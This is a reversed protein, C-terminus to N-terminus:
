TDVGDSYDYALNVLETQTLQYITAKKKLDEVWAQFESAKERSYSSRLDM